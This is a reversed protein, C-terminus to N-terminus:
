AVWIVKVRHVRAAISMAADSAGATARACFGSEVGEIGPIGPIDACASGFSV